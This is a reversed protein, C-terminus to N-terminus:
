IAQFIRQGALGHFMWVGPVRADTLMAAAM